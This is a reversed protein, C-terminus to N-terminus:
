NSAAPQGAQASASASPAHPGRVLRRAFRIARHRSAQSRARAAARGGASGHAARGEAPPRRAGARGARSATETSRGRLPARDGFDLAVQRLAGRHKRRSWPSTPAPLVTTASWAMSIAASAPRAPGRQERRGFDEGALMESRQLRHRPRGPDLHSQQGPAVLAPHAFRDQHPSSAPEISMGRRGSMRDELLAHIVAFEAEDHDVSCCRKPTDCRSASLRWPASARRVHQRHGRRRNRTREHQRLIALHVDAPEVLHRGAPLRDVRADDGSSRSSSTTSPTVRCTSPPPAPRKQTQGITPALM